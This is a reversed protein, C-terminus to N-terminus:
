GSVAACPESVPERLQVLPAEVTVWRITSPQWRCNPGLTRRARGVAQVRALSGVEGNGAACGNGAHRAVQRGDDGLCGGRPKGEEDPIGALDEELGLEGGPEDRHTAAM